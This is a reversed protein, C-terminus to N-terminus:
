AVPGVLGLLPLAAFGNLKSLPAINDIYQIKGKYSSFHTMEEKFLQLKVWIFLKLHRCQKM